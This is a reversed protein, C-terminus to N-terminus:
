CLYWKGKNCPTKNEVSAVLIDESEKPGIVQVGGKKQWDSRGKNLFKYKRANSREEGKLQTETFWLLDINCADTKETIDEM